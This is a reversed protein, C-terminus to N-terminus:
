GRRKAEAERDARRKAEKERAKREESLIENSIAACADLAHMLRSDQEGIGGGAPLAARRWEAFGSMADVEV